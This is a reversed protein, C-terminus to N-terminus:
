RITPTSCGRARWDLGSNSSCGSRSIGLEAVCRRYFTSECLHHRRAFETIKVPGAANKELLNLLRRLRIDAVAFGNSSGREIVGAPAILLQEPKM